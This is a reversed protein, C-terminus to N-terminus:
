LFMICFVISTIKFKCISSRDFISLKHLVFLITHMISEVRPVVYDIHLENILSKYNNFMIEIVYSLDIISRLPNVILSLSKTSSLVKLERM